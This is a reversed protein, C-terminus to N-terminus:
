ASCVLACHGADAHESGCGRNKSGSLLRCEKCLHDSQMGMGPMALIIHQILNLVLINSSAIPACGRNYNAPGCAPDIASAEDFIARAPGLRGQLAMACGQLMVPGM